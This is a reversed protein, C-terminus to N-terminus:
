DAVLYPIKAVYTATMAEGNTDTAPGFRVWSTLNRCAHKDLDDHGSSVLLRCPGIGKGTSDVVLSAIVTGERGDRLASSPYSWRCGLSSCANEESLPPYGGVRISAPKAPVDGQRATEIATFDFVKTAPADSASWNGHFSFFRGIVACAAAHAKTWNTGTAPGCDVPDGNGDTQTFAVLVKSQPVGADVFCYAWMGYACEDLIAAAEAGLRSYDVALIPPSAFVEQADQASAPTLCLPHALATAFAMAYRLARM